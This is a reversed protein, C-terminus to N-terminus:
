VFIHLVKIIRSLAAKCRLEAPGSIRRTFNRVLHYCLRVLRYPPWRNLAWGKLYAAQVAM